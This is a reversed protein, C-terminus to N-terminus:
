RLPATWSAEIEPAIDVTRRDVADRQMVLLRDVILPETIEEAHLLLRLASRGFRVAGPLYPSQRV